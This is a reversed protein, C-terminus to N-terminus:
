TPVPVEAAQKIALEIDARKLMAPLTLKFTTWGDLRSYNLRGGLKRALEHSIALGLGVSGAVVAQSGKHAFREFPSDAMEDPIGPGNDAVVLVIKNKKKGASIAIEDGGHRLANSVLNHIIQRVHLPDSYVHLSPVDVTLKEGSRLYPEAVARVEHSLDFEELNTTLAEADLRAATLLDNVM